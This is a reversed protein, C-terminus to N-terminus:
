AAGKARRPKPQRAQALAQGLALFDADNEGNRKYGALLDILIEYHEDDANAILNDLHVPAKKNWAAANYLNLVVAQLRLATSHFGTLKDRHVRFPSEGRAIRDRADARQNSRAQRAARFELESEAFTLVHNDAHSTGLGPSLQM